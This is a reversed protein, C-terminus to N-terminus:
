EPRRAPAHGRQQAAARARRRLPRGDLQAVRKLTSGGRCGAFLGKIGSLHSALLCWLLLMPAMPLLPAPICRVHDMDVPQEPSGAAEGARQQGQGAARAPRRKPRKERGPRSGCCSMFGGRSKGSPPETQPGEEEFQFTQVWEGSTQRVFPAAKVKTAANFRVSARVATGAQRFRAAGRPKPPTAAAVLAVLDAKPTSGDLAEQIKAPEVSLASARQRLQRKSLKRLEEELAMAAASKAAKKQAARQAAREGQARGLQQIEQATPTFWREFEEFDVVGDGNTDVTAILKDVEAEQQAASLAATDKSFSAMAWRSLEGMEDRSLTGNGDADMEAFKQRARRLEEEVRVKENFERQAKNASRAASSMRKAPAPEEDEYQFTQVWEGSAQRVFPAAKVASGTRSLRASARVAQGAAKFRSAAPESRAAAPQSEAAPEPAAADAPAPEPEPEPAAPVEVGRPM